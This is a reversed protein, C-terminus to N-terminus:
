LNIDLDPQDSRIPFDRRNQQTTTARGLHVSRRGCHVRRRWGSWGVTGPERMMGKQASEFSAGGGSVGVVTFMSPVKPLWNFSAYQAPRKPAPLSRRDLEGKSHCSNQGIMPPRAEATGREETQRGAWNPLQSWPFTGARTRWSEWETGSM